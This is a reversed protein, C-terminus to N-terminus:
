HMWIPRSLAFYRYTHASAKARYVMPMGSLDAALMTLHWTSDEDALILRTTLADWGEELGRDFARDGVKRLAPTLWDEPHGWSWLWSETEARWSAVVGCKSICRRGDALTFVFDATEPIMQWRGSAAGIRFEEYLAATSQSLKLCADQISQQFGVSQDLRHEAGCNKCHLRIGEGCEDPCPDTRNPPRPM